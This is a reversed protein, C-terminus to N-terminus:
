RAHFEGGRGRAEGAKTHVDIPMDAADARHKARDGVGDRRQVVEAKGRDQLAEGLRLLPEYEDGTRGTRAFRAGDRRQDILDIAAALAVDDSDLVWELEHVRALAAQDRLALDADM